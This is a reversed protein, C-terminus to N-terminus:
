SSSTDPSILSRTPVVAETRTMVPVLPLVLSLAATAAGLASCHFVPLQQFIISHDNLPQFSYWLLSFSVSGFRPVSPSYIAIKRLHRESEINM